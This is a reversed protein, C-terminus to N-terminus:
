GVGSLERETLLSDLCRDIHHPSRALGICFSAVLPELADLQGRVARTRARLAEATENAQEVLREYDVGVPRGEDLVVRGDILVTRVASGSESFVMQNLADNLPVFGSEYLDLLVIDARYGPAIRGVEQFGIAQAGGETAAFFAERASVWDEPDHSMIHSLNAATRMVEFMNAHDSYCAADSGVAVRVGCDLMQRLPAVGAGLRLNSVPQHSIAGGRDGLRTLDERDLWIAHAATFRPGLLGLDDLHATLSKGYRRQGVVAQVKTEGLHTALRVDFDSAIDRCAVLFEDSCHIPISPALAPQVRARDFSWGSLIARCADLNESAPVSMIREIAASAEAPLVEMLGPIARWFIGDAIMPSVTARLGLDAYGRAIAAFGEPTPRPLQLVLDFCATCGRKLMEIGNLLASLYLEEEDRRAHIWPAAHLGMELTWDNALGKSLFFHSHTHGNVLGPIILRNTADLTRAQEGAPTGPELIAVIRGGEILLDKCEPRDRRADFILGGRLVKLDGVSM